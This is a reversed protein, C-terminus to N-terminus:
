KTEYAEVTDLVAVTPVGAPGERPLVVDVPRDFM